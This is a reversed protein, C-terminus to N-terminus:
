SSLSIPLGLFLHLELESCTKLNIGSHLPSSTVYKGTVIVKNKTQKFNHSRIRTLLLLLLLLLAQQPQPAPPISSTIIMIMIMIM